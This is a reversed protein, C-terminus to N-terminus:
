AERYRLNFQRAVAAHARLRANWGKVAAQWAVPTIGRAEAVEAMKSPDHGFEAAGACIAAYQELTVGAVPAFNPEVQANGAQAQGAPMGYAEARRVQQVARRALALQRTQEDFLEAEHTMGSGGELMAKMEKIQRFM